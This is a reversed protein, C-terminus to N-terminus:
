LQMCLCTSICFFSNSGRDCPFFGLSAQLFPTLSLCPVSPHVPAWWPSLLPFLEKCLCLPTFPMAAGWFSSYEPYVACPDLFSTALSSVPTEDQAGLGHTPLVWICSYTQVALNFSCFQARAPTAWHISHRGTFWLTAQEMGPWAPCMGPNRSWTGLQHRALPLWDINRECM